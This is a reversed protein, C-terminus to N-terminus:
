SFKEKEKEKFRDESFGKILIMFAVNTKEHQHSTEKILDAFWSDIVFEILSKSTLWLCSYKRWKSKTVNYTLKKEKTM